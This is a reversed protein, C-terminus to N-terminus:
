CIFWGGSGGDPMEDDLETPLVTGLSQVWFYPFLRTGVSSERKESCGSSAPYRRMAIFHGRGVSISGNDGIVMRSVIPYQGGNEGGHSALLRNAVGGEYIGEIVVALIFNDRVVGDEGGDETRSDM